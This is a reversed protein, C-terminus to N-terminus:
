PRRGAAGGTGAALLQLGDLYGTSPDGLQWLRGCAQYGFVFFLFQSRIGFLGLWCSFPLLPSEGEVQKNEM